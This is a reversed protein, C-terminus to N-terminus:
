SQDVERSSKPEQNPTEIRHRQSQLSRSHLQYFYGYLLDTVEAIIQDYRAQDTKHPVTATPKSPEWSPM